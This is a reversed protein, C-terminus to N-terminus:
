AGHGGAQHMTREWLGLCGAARGLVAALCSAAADEPEAVAAAARGLAVRAPAAFGEVLEEEVEWEEELAELEEFAEAELGGEEERAL